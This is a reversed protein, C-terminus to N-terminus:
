QILSQQRDLVSISNFISNIEGVDNFSNSDMSLEFSSSNEQGFMKISKQLRSVRDFYRQCLPLLTTLYSEISKVKQLEKFSYHQLITFLVRIGTFSYKSFGTWNCVLDFLRELESRGVDDNQGVCETFPTSLEEVFRSLEDNTLFPISKLLGKSFDLSLAYKAASFYEQQKFLRNLKEKQQILEEREALQAELIDRSNDIYYFIEGEASGLVLYKTVYEFSKFHQIKRPWGFFGCSWLKCNTVAVVCDVSGTKVNFIRVCGDASQSFIQNPNLIFSKLVPSTHGQFTKVLQLDPVSWMRVFGDAGCTVIAREFTSFETSWVGRKHAKQVKSVVSGDKSLLLSLNKDQGAFSLYKNNVSVDLSNIDKSSGYHNWNNSIKLNQPNGDHNVTFKKVVGDASVTFLEFLDNKVLGLKVLSVPCTMKISTIPTLFPLYNNKSQNYCINWVIVVGDKGSTVLLGFSGKELGKFIEARRWDISMVIDSHGTFLKFQSDKILLLHNTQTAAITFFDVANQGKVDVKQGQLGDNTFDKLPITVLDIIDEPFGLYGATDKFVLNNDLNILTFTMESDISWFSNDDTCNILKVLPTGSNTISQSELLPTLKRNPFHSHDDDLTILGEIFDIDIVNISGQNGAVLLHNSQFIISSPTQILSVTSYHSCDILDHNSDNQNLMKFMCVRGDHGVAFLFSKVILLDILNSQFDFFENFKKNKISFIGLNGSEFGVLFENDWGQVFRILKIPSSGILTICAVKPSMVQSQDAGTSSAINYVLCQGDTTGVALRFGDSDLAMASTVTSSKIPLRLSSLSSLSTHNTNYIRIINNSHSVALLNPATTISVISAQESPHITSTPLSHTDIVRINSGSSTYFYRNDHSNCLPGGDWFPTICQQKHLSITPQISSAATSQKLSM